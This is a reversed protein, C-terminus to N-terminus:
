DKTYFYITLINANSDTSYRVSTTDFPISSKLKATELARYVKNQDILFAKAKNMIDTSSFMLETSNKGTNAAQIIRDALAATLGSDVSDFYAGYIIYYYLSPNNCEYGFEFESHTRCLMEETMNFFTHRCIIDGNDSVPDDWTADTYCWSGKIKVANWMHSQSNGDYDTATGRILVSEIGASNLLLKLAKAYGSCKASSNLLVGAVTNEAEDETDSYTCTNVIYDHLYLEAEFEDEPLGDQLSDVITNIREAQAIYEEEGLTYEPKFFARNGRIELSCTNFMFLMPNDYIIANLVEELQEKDLVPTEIRTPFSLIEERVATYAQKQEEDLTIYYYDTYSGVPFDKEETARNLVSMIVLACAAFIAAGTLAKFLKKIM